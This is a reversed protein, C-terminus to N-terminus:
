SMRAAGKKPILILPTNENQLRIQHPLLVPQARFLGRLFITCSEEGRRSLREGLCSLLFNGGDYLGTWAGDAPPPYSRGAAARDVGSHQTQAAAGATKSGTVSTHGINRFKRRGMGFAKWGMTSHVYGVAFVRCFLPLGAQESLISHQFCHECVLNQEAAHLLSSFTHPFRLSPFHLRTLCLPPFPYELTRSLAVPWSFILFLTRYLGGIVMRIICGIGGM